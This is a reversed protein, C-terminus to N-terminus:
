SSFMCFNSSGCRSTTPNTHCTNERNEPLSYHLQSAGGEDTMRHVRTMRFLKRPHANVATIQPTRGQFVTWKMPNLSIISLGFWVGLCSGVQVIYEVLTLQSVTKVSTHAASPVMSNITLDESKYEVVSTKSFKTYCETQIRCLLHCTSFDKTARNALTENEYDKRTIMKVDFAQHHFGSGTVRNLKFHNTLCEEYCVSRDHGPVCKTNHPYPLRTVETEQGWIYFASENYSKANYFKAGFFRSHLPDIIDDTDVFSSIFSALVTRRLSPSLDLSYAVYLYRVSSVANGVSYKTRYRPTFTYCVQQGNVSKSVKFLQECEKGTLHEIDSLNDNRVTCHMVLGTTPPTLQFIKKITLVSLEHDIEETSRPSHPFIDYETYQSRDLLDIHRCCFVITQYNETETVQFETKSSTEFLFYHESVQHLQLLFGSFCITSFVVSLPRKSCMM